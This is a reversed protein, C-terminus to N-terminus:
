LSRKPHQLMLVTPCPQVSPHGDSIILIIFALTLAGSSLIASIIGTISYFPKVIGYAAMCAPGLCHGTLMGDTISSIVEALDAILMATLAARFIRNIMRGSNM